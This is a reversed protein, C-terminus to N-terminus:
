AGVSIRSTQEDCPRSRRLRSRKTKAACTIRALNRRACPIAEGHELDTSDTAGWFDGIATGEGAVADIINKGLDLQDELTKYATDNIVKFTSSAVPLVLSLTGTVLKLYPAAKKFWERTLEIEYVGKTSDKGNLEPLPLRSHECWFTLRFKASAWEKSQIQENLPSLASCGRVKKPKM